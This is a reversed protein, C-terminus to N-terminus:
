STGGAEPFGVSSKLVAEIEERLVRGPRLLLPEPGSLDLVTSEVGVQCPGGDVILDVPDGLSDYVHQACTPSMGGSRNASPAVVPRGFAKLLDLAFPHNPMRVALSTLGACALSSVPCARVQPLVSDFPDPWFAEIVSRARDSVEVLDELAGCDAVHCILPNFSPRGKVRYIRAVAEGNTADAGLGYVTETPFAVIGGAALLAVAKDRSESSALSLMPMPVSEHDACAERWLPVTAFVRNGM